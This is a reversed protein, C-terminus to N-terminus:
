RRRRLWAFVSRVTGSLGRRPLPAGSLLAEIEAQRPHLGMNFRELTDVGMEDQLKRDLNRSWVGLRGRVTWRRLRQDIAHASTALDHVTRRRVARLGYFFAMDLRYRLDSEERGRLNKFQVTVQYTEPLGAEKRRPLQDFLTRVEAGDM